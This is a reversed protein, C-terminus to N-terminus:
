QRPAANHEAINNTESKKYGVTTPTTTLAVIPKTRMMNHTASGSRRRNKSSSSSGTLASQAASRDSGRAAHCSAHAGPDDGRRPAQAGPRAGARHHAAPVGEPRLRGQPLDGRLPAGVASPEGGAVRLVM